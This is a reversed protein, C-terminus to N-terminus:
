RQSRRGDMGKLSLLSQRIRKIRGTNENGNGKRERLWAGCQSCQKIEFGTASLGGACRRCLPWHTDNTATRTTGRCEVARVPKREKSGTFTPNVPVIARVRARVNSGAMMTVGSGSLGAHSARTGAVPIVGGSGGSRLRRENVLVGFCDVAAV